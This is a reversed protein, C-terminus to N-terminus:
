WLESLMKMIAIETHLDLLHSPRRTIRGVKTIAANYIEFAFGSVQSSFRDLFRTGNTLTIHEETERMLQPKHVHCDRPSWRGM